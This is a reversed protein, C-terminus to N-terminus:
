RGRKLKLLILVISFVVAGLGLVFIVWTPVFCLLLLILGAILVLFVAAQRCM